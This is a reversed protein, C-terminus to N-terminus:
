AIAAHAAMTITKFDNTINWVMDVIKLHWLMELLVMHLYSTACLTSAIMLTVQWDKRLVWFTLDYIQKPKAIIVMKLTYFFIGNWFTWKLFNPWINEELWIQWNPWRLWKLWETFNDMESIEAVESIKAVLALKVM